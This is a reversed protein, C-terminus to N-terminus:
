APNNAVTAYNRPFTNWFPVNTITAFEPVCIFHSRCVKEFITQNYGFRACVTSLGRYAHISKLYTWPQKCLQSSASPHLGPDGVADEFTVSSIASTTIGITATPSTGGCQALTYCVLMRVYISVCVTRRALSVTWTDNKASGESRVIYRSSRSISSPRDRDVYKRARLNSKNRCLTAIATNKYENRRTKLRKRTV